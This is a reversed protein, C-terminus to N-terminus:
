GEQIVFDPAMKKILQKDRRSFEKVDSDIDIDFSSECSRCLVHFGEDDCHIAVRKNVHNCALCVFNGKAM